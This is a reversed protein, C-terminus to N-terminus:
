ERKIWIFDYLKDYAEKCCRNLYSRGKETDIIKACNPNKSLTKFVKEVDTLYSEVEDWYMKMSLRFIPTVSSHSLGYHNLALTLIDVDNDIAYRLNEENVFSKLSWSIFREIQQSVPNLIADKLTKAVEAFRVEEDSL